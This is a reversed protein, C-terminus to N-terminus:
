ESKGIGRYRKMPLELSPKYPDTHGNAYDPMKNQMWVKVHLILTEIPILGNLMDDKDEKSLLRTSILEAKVCLMKAIM